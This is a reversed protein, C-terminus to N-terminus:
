DFARPKLPREASSDVAAQLLSRIRSPNCRKWLRVEIVSDGWIVLARDDAPDDFQLRVRLGVIAKLADSRYLRNNFRVGQSTVIRTTDM